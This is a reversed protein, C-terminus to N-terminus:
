GENIIKRVKIPDAVVIQGADPGGEITAVIYRDIKQLLEEYDDRDECNDEWLEGYKVLEDVLRVIGEPENAPLEKEFDEPLLVVFSSSSSNSVFGYRIKM